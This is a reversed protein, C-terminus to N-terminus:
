AAVDAAIRAAARGDGYPSHARAMAAHAAPDDLLRAVETVIRDPDTGVLRATGAAVGDPRETTDRLVLVPKGLAPAEEQVGGSDTLVLDCAQMARVFCPYDLAPVTVIAPHGALIPGITRHIAPNAHLPLLVAVDGRAVIRVLARAIRVLGGDWNERRHMTALIMRRGAMTALVPDLTDALEPQAALRDAMWCLADIGTNGTVRITAPDVGDRMLTEAATRTPAWHRDALQTIIRRHGEEPWPQLLDGSRLGAEVHGIPIRRHHAALATAMATSTDGQVIVRDPALDDLVAGVAEILRATLRDLSQGPARVSLHVDPVLGVLSLIGDLMAGHQGTACCRPAIGPMEALARAVPFLKIAEPRTGFVLLPRRDPIM